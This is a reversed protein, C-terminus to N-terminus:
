PKLLCYLLLCVGFVVITWYQLKVLIQHLGNEYDIM